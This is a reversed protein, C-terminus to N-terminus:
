VLTAGEHPDAAAVAAELGLTLGALLYFYFQYGVPHFLAAVAFAILGIQLAEALHFLPGGREVRAASSRAAGAKRICRALLILFLLLGPLGLEVAYQLYVNHVMRWTAGREANMALANMGVGAGTLPNTQVVRAAAALDDWREQASGTPDSNIHTITEMHDVYGSPLLPVCLLLLFPLFLILPSRGSLRVLYALFITMLTLFGGRSFTAIVAVVDLAVIAFLVARLMPRRVILLLAVGLPLILNLTLALDNPNATLPAEYGAIRAFGPANGGPVFVGSLLNWVGTLALPATTLVLCWAMARLRAQTVVVGAFLWLLALTKGFPDILYGLSGAPWLSLPLTLAAWGGLGLAIWIEPAIGIVSERHSLKEYLLAMMAVGAALMAPHLPALAPVFSQPALMLLCTFIMLAVFPLRARAQPAPLSLSRERLVPRGAAAPSGARWWEMAPTVPM